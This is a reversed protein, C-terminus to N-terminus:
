PIADCIFGLVEENTNLSWIKISSDGSASVYYEEGPLFKIVTVPSEHAEITLINDQKGTNWVSITGNYGSTIITEGNKTIDFSTIGKREGDIFVPWCVIENLTSTQWFRLTGDLSSSIILDGERSYQIGTILDTHGKLLGVCEKLEIDYCKISYNSDAIALFCEDSSITFHRQVQSQNHPFVFLKQSNRDRVLSFGDVSFLTEYECTEFKIQNKKTSNQGLYNSININPWSELDSQLFLNDRRILGSESENSSCSGPSIMRWGPSSKTPSFFKHASITLGTRLM